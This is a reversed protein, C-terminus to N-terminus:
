RLGAADRYATILPQQRDTPRGETMAEGIMAIVERREDATCREGLIRALRRTWRVEDQVGGAAHLAEALLENAMPADVAFVRAVIGAMRARDDPTVEREARHALVMITTAALMPDDIADIPLQGEAAKRFRHRRVAAQVDSATEVIEKGTQFIYGLKWLIGVVAAATGLLLLLIHM